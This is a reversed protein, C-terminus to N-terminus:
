ILATAALFAKVRFTELIQFMIPVTSISVSNVVGDILHWQFFEMRNKRKKLIQLPAAFVLGGHQYAIWSKHFIVMFGFLVDAGAPGDAEIRDTALYSISSEPFAAL